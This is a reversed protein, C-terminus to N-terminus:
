QNYKKLSNKISIQTGEYDAQEYIFNRNARCAAGCKTSNCKLCEFFCGPCNEDMCDCINLGSALHIGKSDYLNPNKKKKPTNLKKDLKKSERISTEPNFTDMEEMFTSTHLILKQVDDSIIKIKDDYSKKSAKNKNTEM